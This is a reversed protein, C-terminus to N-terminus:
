GTARDRINRHDHGDDFVVGRVPQHVPSELQEVAEAYEM